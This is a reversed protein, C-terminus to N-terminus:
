YSRSADILYEFLVGGTRQVGKGPRGGSAEALAGLMDTRLGADIAARLEPHRTIHALTLDGSLGLYDKLAVALPTANALRQLLAYTIESSQPLRGQQDTLEKELDTLHKGIELKRALVQEDNFSLLRFRGIERL